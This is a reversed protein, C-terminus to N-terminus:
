GRGRASIDLRESAAIDDKKIGFIALVERQAQQKATAFSKAEEQMLYIVRDKELHSPVTVNVSGTDSIDALAFLTLPAVSNRSIVEDFYFGNAM